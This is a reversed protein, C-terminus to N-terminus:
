CQHHETYHWVYCQSSHPLFEHTALVLCKTVTNEVDGIEVEIKEIGHKTDYEVTKM